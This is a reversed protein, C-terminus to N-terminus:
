TVAKIVKETTQQVVPRTVLYLGGALLAVGIVVKLVRFWNNRDSVWNYSARTAAGIDGLADGAGAVSDVVGGIVEAGPPEGRAAIVAAATPAYVLALGSKEVRTWTSWPSWDTGNKSLAAMVRANTAPDLLAGNSALGFRERREPGLKGLMNIQWLGYSDDPPTSNHADPNFGSELKAIAIAEALRGGNTVGAKYALAGVTIDKFAM